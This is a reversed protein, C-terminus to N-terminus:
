GGNCWHPGNQLSSCESSADQEADQEADRGMLQRRPARSSIRWMLHLSLLESTQGRWYNPCLVVIPAAAARQRLSSRAGNLVLCAGRKGVGKWGAVRETCKCGQLGRQQM